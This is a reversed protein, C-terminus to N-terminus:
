LKHIKENNTIHHHYKIALIQRNDSVEDYDKYNSRDAITSQGITSQPDVTQM